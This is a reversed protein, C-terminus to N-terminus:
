TQRRSDRLNKLKMKFSNLVKENSQVSGTSEVADVGKKWAKDINKWGKKASM